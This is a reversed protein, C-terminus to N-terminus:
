KQQSFNVGGGKRRELLEELRHREQIVAIDSEDKSVRDETKFQREQITKTAQEQKDLRYSVIQLTVYSGISVSITAVVAQIMVSFLFKTLFRDQNKDREESNRASAITLIPCFLVWQSFWHAFDRWWATDTLQQTYAKWPM